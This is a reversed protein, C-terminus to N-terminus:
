PRIAGVPEIVGGRGDPLRFQKLRQPEFREAQLQKLEIYDLLDHAARQEARGMASLNRNLVTAIDRYTLDGVFPGGPLADPRRNPPFQGLLHDANRYAEVLPNGKTPGILIMCFDRRPLNFFSKLRLWGCEWLGVRINRVLQDSSYSSQPDHSATSRALNSLFKMEVFITTPPNEWSITVDVQTSGEPNPLLERPMVPRNKWLEIQLKRYVQRRFRPAGLALNLIDALWWRPNIIGLIQFLNGSIADESTPRVILPCRLKGERAPQCVTGGKGRLEALM